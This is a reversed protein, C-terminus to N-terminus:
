PNQGNSSLSKSFRMLVLQRVIDVSSYLILAPLKVSICRLQQLTFDLHSEVLIEQDAKRVEPHTKSIQTM